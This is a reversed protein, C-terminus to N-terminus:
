SDTNFSFECFNIIIILGGVHASYAVGTGCISNNAIAAVEGACRTGHSDLSLFSWPCYNRANIWSIDDNKRPASNRNQYFDYCHSKGGLIDWILWGSLISQRIRIHSSVVISQKVDDHISILLLEVSWIYYCIFPQKVLMLYAKNSAMFLVYSSFHPM